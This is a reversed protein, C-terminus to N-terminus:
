REQDTRILQLPIVQVMTGRLSRSSPARSLSLSLSSLSSRFFYASSAHASCFVLAIKSNFLSGARALSLSRFSFFSFRVSYDIHKHAHTPTAEEAKPPQESKQSMKKSKTKTKTKHTHQTHKDFCSTHPKNTQAASILFAVVPCLRELSPSSPLLIKKKKKSALLTHARILPPSFPHEFICSLSIRM